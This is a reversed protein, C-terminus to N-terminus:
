FGFEFVALSIGRYRTDSHQFNHGAFGLNWDLLHAQLDLMCSCILHQANQFHEAQRLITCPSWDCQLSTMVHQSPSVVTILRSAESHMRWTLSLTLISTVEEALGAYNSAELKFPKHGFMFCCITIYAKSLCGRYTNESWNITTDAFGPENHKYLVFYRHGDGTGVAPLWVWMGVFFEHETVVSCTTLCLVTYVLKPRWPKILVLGLTDLECTVLNSSLSFYM